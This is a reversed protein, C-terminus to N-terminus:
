CRREVIQEHKRFEGNVSTFTGSRHITDVKTEVSQPSGLHDLARARLLHAFTFTLLFPVTLHTGSVSLLSPPTM